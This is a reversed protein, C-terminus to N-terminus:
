RRARSGSTALDWAASGSQVGTTGTLLAYGPCGPWWLGLVAGDFFCIRHNPPVQGTCGGTFGSMHKGLATATGDGPPLPVVAPCISPVHLVLTDGRPCHNHRYLQVRPVVAWFPPVVALSSFGSTLLLFSVERLDFLLSRHTFLSTYTCQNVWFGESTSERKITRTGQSWLFLVYFVGDEVKETLLSHRVTKYGFM